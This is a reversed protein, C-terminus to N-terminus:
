HNPSGPAINSRDVNTGGVRQICVAGIQCQGITPVPVITHLLCMTQNSYHYHCVKNLLKVLKHLM